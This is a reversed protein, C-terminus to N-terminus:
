GLERRHGAGIPRRIPALPWAHARERELIADDIVGIRGVRASQVPEPAHVLPEVARGLSAVLLLAHPPAMVVLVVLASCQSAAIFIAFEVLRAVLQSDSTAAGVKASM